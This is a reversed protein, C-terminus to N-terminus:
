PPLGIAAALRAPNDVLLSRIWASDGDVARHLLRLNLPYTYPPGDNGWVLKSTDIAIGHRVIRELAFVGSAAVDAWVHEHQSVLEAAQEVYVAGGAHCLIVRLKPFARCVRDFYLPDGFRSSLYRGAAREEDKHRATIFGTHVMATLGLAEMEAFFPSLAPDDAEWGTVPLLKVVRVGAAAIARLRPVADGGTPDAFRSRWFRTPHDEAAARLGEDGLLSPVEDPVSQLLCRGVGLRDMALVQLAAMNPYRPLIQHMDTWRDPLWTLAEVGALFVSPDRLKAPEAPHGCRPCPLGPDDLRHRCYPYPCVRV